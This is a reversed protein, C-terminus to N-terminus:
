ITTDSRLEENGIKSLHTLNGSADFNQKFLNGNILYVSGDYTALDNPLKNILNGLSTTTNYVNTDLTSLKNYIDTIIDSMAVTVIENTGNDKKILKKYFINEANHHYMKTNDSPSITEDSIHNYYGASRMVQELEISTADSKVDELINSLQDTTSLNSPFDIIISESWNSKIPTYPYGAESISRIMFEVKEGNTIPLDIQNINITNGDGVNQEEWIWTKISKDYVKEKIPTKVINWDSFVANVNNDGDKYNYTNLEIGTEDTKIYRYKIEFGIVEQKSIVVKKDNYIYKPSPIPFFGRVRYKPKITSIKNDKIFASLHNVLSKYETTNNTLINEENTILNQLSFRESQNVTNTLNSKLKSIADRSSSISTKLSAIQSATNIIENKNITSNIQTNVQVVKFNAANLKPADPTLGSSAPIRKEKAESIWYSGFDAINSYYYSELTETNNEEFSLENTIFNIPDSWENGLLNYDENVGKLYICNIEDIGISIQIEKNLFPSEYITFTEGVIPVDLGLNSIIHVRNTSLDIKDITFLSNKFKLTDKVKLNINNLSTNDNPNDIGYYMNSLYYWVEGDIIDSNTIEFEGILRQTTLPFDVVDEDKFYSINNLELINLLTNYDLSKDKINEIFFEVTSDNKPIIIRCM